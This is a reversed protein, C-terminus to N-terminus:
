NFGLWWKVWGLADHAHRSSSDICGHMCSDVSNKLIAYACQDNVYDQITILAPPPVRFYDPIKIVKDVAKDLSVLWSEFEEETMRRNELVMKSDPHLVDYETLAALHKGDPGPPPRPSPTRRFSQSGHEWQNSSISGNDSM